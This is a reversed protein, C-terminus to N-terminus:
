RLCLRTSEILRKTYPDSPSSVVTQALGSEVSVGNHLVIMRDAFSAALAIDHTIFLISLDNEMNLRKLLRVVEAQVTVDLSSTAEDAILLVPDALLAQAIMARQLMGGSLQHPYARYVREVDDLGCQALVGLVKERRATKSLTRALREDLQAGIRSVPDFSQMPDQFVIGLARRRVTDRVDESLGLMEFSDSGRTVVIEGSVATQSPLIGMVASAITSKGSGSEGVVALIEGQAIECSFALLGRVVADGNHYTVTLDKIFLSPQVPMM